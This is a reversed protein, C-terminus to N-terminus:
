LRRQYQLAGGPGPVLHTLDQWPELQGPQYVRSMVVYISTQAAGLGVATVGDWSEAALRDTVVWDRGDHELTREFSFPAPKKGVILMKQLLKRILNPFLRGGTLMVLRLLVLRASTMRAQKAWGLRGRVTIRGEEVRCDYRDVLHGVATRAARGRGVRVSIQTDGAALSGGRFLKFAGGKNLALFLAHEGRRDVLLGARPFHTLGPPPPTPVPRQPHHHRWALLYSWAHHGLIHDDDYCAGLGRELGAYFRDALAAAEPLWPAMLELGHPFFNYTNRSTYEGGFSGDPHIFHGLFAVARGLAPRLGPHFGEHDLEALLSITLTLYGPDCGEYEPFWGEPDQWALLSEVRRRAAEALSPEDLLRAARYLCAAVLAQHNSLRGTEDYDALFRARRALFDAIDPERVDLLECARLSAYLSFAAAGMAKEFPFYDDCSADAHASAAAFRMGAIALERIATQRHFRNGDMETGHALALPLVFEQAMGSPFDIIKYHWYNRDFCGHTPSHPNRDALTLMKPIAALATRALIDPRM